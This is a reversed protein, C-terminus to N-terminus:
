LDNSNKGSLILKTALNRVAPLFQKESLVHVEEECLYRFMVQVYFCM